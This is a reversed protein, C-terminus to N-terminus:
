QASGSSSYMETRMLACVKYREDHTDEYMRDLLSVVEEVGIKDCWEFPGFPYNTGLKMAIDIDEKSATGEQLTYFAENIIMFLIRPTIM